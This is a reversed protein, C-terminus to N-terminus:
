LNSSAPTANLDYIESHEINTKKLLNLARESLTLYNESNLRFDANKDKGTIKLWYFQPLKVEHLLENFTDSRNILCTDFEFGKLDSDKM